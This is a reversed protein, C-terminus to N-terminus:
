YHWHRQADLVKGLRREEPSQHARVICALCFVALLILILPVLLPALANM